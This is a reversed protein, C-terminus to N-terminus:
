SYNLNLEHDKILKEWGHDPTFLFGQLGCKEASIVNEPNDDIFISQEPVIYSDSIVAQFIAPDPKRLCMEFSYYEKIFFSYFCATEPNDNIEAFFKRYHIINTNSLLLLQYNSKLRSLYPISNKNLGSLVLNFANIVQLRDASPKVLNAMYDVFEEEAIAGKEFDYLTDSFKNKGIDIEIGLDKFRKIAKEIEIDYLVGGFDFILNKIKEM